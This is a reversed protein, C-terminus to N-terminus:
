IIGTVEGGKDGQVILPKGSRRPIRVMKEQCLIEARHKSLWDMGIVVDFSGLIIPFLDISYTQGSLELKCDNIVHSAEINRGNALEVIHKSSLLSPPHKLKKSIRLSVYSADAGSDFLVSVYRDDLLFKGAVVNPDNRAEGAGIVFARGRAGNGANNNQDNNGAGQNNNRNQNLEPCNKKFHGEAGCQFCGKVNGHHQQQQQNQGAPRPSRCDKAEHGMKNCRQCQSKGCPGSHHRNRKNCKPHNGRYGGQQQPGKNNDTKRQQTPAQTPNADKSQNGEWKHKNDNSTGATASIRKPLKGQEVAQDTLKHALRVVPQITNLNAATVHSRIEPALGKIYLEIRRYMPRSMNPCLAAYDNSQKTYAEIESGVMKLEYYENELKHIDDRHCYEEKIMDKFDEWATANATELGFMQIQAKWWSLANGELTGTAFKVWNAPPCECVAFVAEVKEIWHLLGLAGETGNFPLPKCDM